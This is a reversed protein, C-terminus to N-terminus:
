GTNEIRGFELVERRKNDAAHPLIILVEEVATCMHIRLGNCGCVVGSM